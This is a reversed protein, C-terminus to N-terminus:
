LSHNGTFFYSRKQCSKYLICTNLSVNLKFFKWSRNYPTLCVDSNQLKFLCKIWTSQVRSKLLNDNFRGKRNQEIDSLGIVKIKFLPKSIYLNNKYKCTDVQSRLLIWRLWSEYLSILFCFKRMENTDKKQIFLNRKYNTWTHSRRCSSCDM